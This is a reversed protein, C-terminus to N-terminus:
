GTGGGHPSDQYMVTSFRTWAITNGSSRLEFQPFRGGFRVPVLTASIGSPPTTFQREEFFSSGDNDTWALSGNSSPGENDWEIAQEIVWVRRWPDIDPHRLGGSRWESVITSGMSDATRDRYPQSMTARSSFMLPRRITPQYKISIGYEDWTSTQSNWNGVADDWQANDAILGASVFDMGFSYEENYAQLMWSDADFDYTLSRTAYGNSNFDDGATYFLEYRKEQTVSVGFSRLPNKFNDRIFGQVRSNEETPAGQRKGMAVLQNGRINWVEFDKGLFTIGAVTTQITLPYPCSVERSIPNFDFAAVDRRPRARWIEETTFLLFGDDDMPHLWIIKGRMDRIDEFGAGLNLTWDAFFGRRTWGVRNVHQDGSTDSINAFVLRNDAAV